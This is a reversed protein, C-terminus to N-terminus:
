MGTPDAGFKWNWHFIVGTSLISMYIVCLMVGRAYPMVWHGEKFASCWGALVAIMSFTLAFGAVPLARGRSVFTPDCDFVLTYVLGLLFAVLILHHMREGQQVAFGYEAQWAYLRLICAVLFLGRWTKFARRSTQCTARARWEELVAPAYDMLLVVYGFLLAMTAACSISGTALEIGDSYIFGQGWAQAAMCLPFFRKSAFKEVGPWCRALKSIFVCMCEQTHQAQPSYSFCAWMFSAVMISLSDRSSRQLKVLRMWWALVLISHLTSAAVFVVPVWFRKVAEQDAGIVENRDHEEAFDMVQIPALQGSSAPESPDTLGLELGHISVSDTRTIDDDVDAPQRGYTSAPHKGSPYAAVFLDSRLPLKQVRLCPQQPLARGSNLAHSTVATEIRSYIEALSLYHGICRAFTRMLTSCGAPNPIEEAPYGCASAWITVLAKCSASRNGPKVLKDASEKPVGHCCNMLCFIVADNSAKSNVLKEILIKVPFQGGAEKEGDRFVLVAEGDIVKCHGNFNFFLFDHDETIQECFIRLYQEFKNRDADICQLCEFHIRQLGECCWTTDAVPYVLPEEPYNKIGVSLGLRKCM